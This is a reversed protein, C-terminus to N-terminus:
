HFFECRTQKLEIPSESARRWYAHTLQVAAWAWVISAIFAVRVGTPM